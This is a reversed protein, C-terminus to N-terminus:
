RGSLNSYHFFVFPFPSYKIQYRLNSRHRYPSHSPWCISMLLRAVCSPGRSKICDSQKAMSHLMSNMMTTLLYKAVSVSLKLLVNKQFLSFCAHNSMTFQFLQPEKSLSYFFMRSVNTKSRTGLVSGIITAAIFVTTM